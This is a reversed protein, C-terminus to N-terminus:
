ADSVRRNFRDIVDQVGNLVEEFLVPVFREARRANLDNLREGSRSSEEGAQNGVFGEDGVILQVEFVGAFDEAVFDERESIVGRLGVDCASIFLSGALAFGERIEPEAVSEEGIFVGILLLRGECEGAEFM